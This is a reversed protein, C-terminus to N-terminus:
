FPKGQPLKLASGELTGFACLSLDAFFDFEGFPVIYGGGVLMMFGVMGIKSKGICRGLAALFIVLLEAWLRLEVWGCVDGPLFLSVRRLRM